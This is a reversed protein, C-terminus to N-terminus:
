GLISQLKFYAKSAQVDGFQSVIMEIADEMSMEGNAIAIGATAIHHEASDEPFVSTVTDLQDIQEESPEFQEILYDIEEDIVDVVILLNEIVADNRPFQQFTGVRESFLADAQIWRSSDPNM